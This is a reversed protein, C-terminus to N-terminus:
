KLNKRKFLYIGILNVAATIGASSLLLRLPHFVQAAAIQLSQGAPLVDAFFQYVERASGTLHKPNAAQSVVPTGDAMQVQQIMEPQSLRQLLLSAIMLLSISLVMCFIASAAKSSNLMSILHFISTYVLNLLLSAAILLLIEESPSDFFGLLPIGAACMVAMYALTSLIAAASSVLFGSLYIKARSCGITIKNRLLGDSYERGIFLSCFAASTFGTLAAFNFFIEDLSPQEGYKLWRLRNVLILIGWLVMAALLAWFLRDRLLRRFDAHLLNNM